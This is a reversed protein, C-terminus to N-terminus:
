PVRDEALLTATRVPSGSTTGGEGLEAFADRVNWAGRAVGWPGRSAQRILQRATKTKAAITKAMAPGHYAAM